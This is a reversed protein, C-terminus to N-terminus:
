NRNLVISPETKSLVEKNFCYPFNGKTYKVTESSKWNYQKGLVINYEKELTLLEAHPISKINKEEVIKVYDMTTYWGICIFITYASILLAIFKITLKLEM